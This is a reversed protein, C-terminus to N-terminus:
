GDEGLGSIGTQRGAPEGAQRGAQVDIRRGAEHAPKLNSLQKYLNNGSM